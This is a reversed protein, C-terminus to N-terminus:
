KESDTDLSHRHDGEGGEGTLLEDITTLVVHGHSDGDSTIHTYGIIFKDVIEGYFSHRHPDDGDRTTVGVVYTAMYTEVYALKVKYGNDQLYKVTDPHPSYESSKISKGAKKFSATCLAFASDKSKGDKMIGKVCREFAAGCEIIDGNSMKLKTLNSM